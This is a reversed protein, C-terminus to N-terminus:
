EINKFSENAFKKIKFFDLFGLAGENIVYIDILDKVIKTDASNVIQNNYILKEFIIEKKTVNIKGVANFSMNNAPLKNLIIEQREILNKNFLLDKPPYGWLSLEPTLILDASDKSANLSIELIKKANGELDGVIPNIQALYIKM